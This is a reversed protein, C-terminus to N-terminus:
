ETGYFTVSYAETISHVPCQTIETSMMDLQSGPLMLRSFGLRKAASRKDSIDEVPLVEGAPGICGTFVIEKPVTRDTAASLIAMSLALGYSAGLIPLDKALGNTHIYLNREEFISPDFRDDFSALDSITNITAFLVNKVEQGIPGAIYLQGNGAHLTARISVQHYTDEILVLTHAAPM